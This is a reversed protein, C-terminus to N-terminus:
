AVSFSMVRNAISRSQHVAQTTELGQSFSSGSVTSITKVAFTLTLVGIRKNLDRPENFPSTHVCNLEVFSMNREDNGGGLFFCLFCM